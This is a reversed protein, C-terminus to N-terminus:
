ACIWVFGGGGGTRPGFSFIGQEFGLFTQAKGYSINTNRCAPSTFAVAVPRSVPFTREEDFAVLLQLLEPHHTNQLLGGM